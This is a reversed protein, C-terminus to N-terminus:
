LEPDVDPPKDVQEWTDMRIGWHAEVNSASNSYKSEAFKRFLVVDDFWFRPYPSSVLSDAESLMSGSVMIMLPYVMTAAGLSLVIFLTLNLMRVKVSRRGVKSILPM